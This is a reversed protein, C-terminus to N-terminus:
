HIPNIRSVNSERERKIYIYIEREREREIDEEKEIKEVPRKRHVPQKALM